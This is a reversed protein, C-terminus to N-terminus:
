PVIQPLIKSSDPHAETRDAETGEQMSTAVKERLTQASISPRLEPVNKMRAEQNQRLIERAENNFGQLIRTEIERLLQEKDRTCCREAHLQADLWAERRLAGAESLSLKEVEAELKACRAELEASSKLLAKCRERHRIRMVQTRNLCVFWTLITGLLISLIILPLFLSPESDM